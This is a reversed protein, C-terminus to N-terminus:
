FTRWNKIPQLGMHIPTKEKHTLVIDGALAVRYKELSKIPRGEGVTNAITNGKVDAMSSVVGHPTNAPFLILHGETTDVSWSTANDINYSQINDNMGDYLENPKQNSFFCLKKKFKEPTNVYYVFSLHADSHSHIPNNERKTINFWSKVINYDYISPDISLCSVYDMAIQTVFRYLDSYRDDLQLDLHGTLENSLGDDSLHDKISDFIIAKFKEADEYIEHGILTPFLHIRNM